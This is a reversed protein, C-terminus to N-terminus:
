RASLSCSLRGNLALSAVAGLLTQMDIPKELHDQFGARLVSTRHAPGHLGTLAAAPTLGGSEPALARVQGILWYGGKGPMELDSLLVDPRRCRVAELAADATEVATVAAGFEELAACLFRRVIPADDVVVVRIGDLRTLGDSREQAIM